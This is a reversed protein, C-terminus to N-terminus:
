LVAVLMLCCAALIGLAPVAATVLKMVQDPRDDPVYAMVSRSAHELVSIESNNMKM